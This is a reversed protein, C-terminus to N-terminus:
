LCTYEKPPPNGMSAQWAVDHIHQQKAEELAERALQMHDWAVSQHVDDSVPDVHTVSTLDYLEEADRLEKSLHHLNSCARSFYQEYSQNQEAQAPNIPVFAITLVGTVLCLVLILIAAVSQLSPDKAKPKGYQGIVHWNPDKM